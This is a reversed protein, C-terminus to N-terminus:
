EDYGRNKAERKKDKHKGAKRKVVHIVMHNRPKKIKIKIKMSKGLFGIGVLVTHKKIKRREQRM